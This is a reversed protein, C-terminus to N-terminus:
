SQVAPTKLVSRVAVHSISVGADRMTEAITRLALGQAKLRRIRRIAAQQEPIAVLAGDEGVRWGFPPTGGLYRGRQRQDRKTEAVRERTRNASRRPWRPCSPSSWSPSAM